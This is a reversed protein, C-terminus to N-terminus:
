STACQLLSRQTIYLGDGIPWFSRHQRRADTESSWVAVTANAENALYRYVAVTHSCGCIHGTSHPRYRAWDCTCWASQLDPALRVTYTNGSASAVEYTYGYIHKVYHLKSKNQLAKANRKM